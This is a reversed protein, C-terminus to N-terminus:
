APLRGVMKDAIPQLSSRTLKFVLLSMGLYTIPFETSQYPFSALAAQIQEESCRIPAVQCKAM